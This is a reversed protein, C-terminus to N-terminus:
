LALLLVTTGLLTGLAATTRRAADSGLDGAAPSSGVAPSPAPSSPSCSLDCTLGLFSQAMDEYLCEVYAEYETQCVAPGEVCMGNSIFQQVDACTNPSFDDDDGDDGDAFFDDDLSQQNSLCDQFATEEAPCNPSFDDDDDGSLQRREQPVVGTAVSPFNNITNDRAAGRVAAARVFGGPFLLYGFVPARWASSRAATGRAPVASALLLASGVVPALNTAGRYLLAASQLVASSSGADSKTASPVDISARQENAVVLANAIAAAPREHAAAAHVSILLACALHRAAGAGRKRQPSRMTM